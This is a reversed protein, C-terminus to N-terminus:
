RCLEQSGEFQAVLRHTSVDGVAIFVHGLFHHRHRRLPGITSRPAQQEHWIADRDRADAGERQVHLHRRVVASRADTCAHVTRRTPQAVSRAISSPAGNRPSAAAKRCALACAAFVCVEPMVPHRFRGGGLPLGVILLLPDGRTRFVEPEDGVAFTRARLLERAPALYSATDGGYFMQVDSSRAYAGVAIAVRVIFALSIAGAIARRPSLTMRSDEARRERGRM